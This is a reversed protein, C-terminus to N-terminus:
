EGDVDRERGHSGIQEGVEHVLRGVWPHLEFSRRRAALIPWHPREGGKPPPRSAVAPPSEIVLADIVLPEAGFAGARIARAIGWATEGPSHASAHFRRLDSRTPMAESTITNSNMRHLIGDAVPSM